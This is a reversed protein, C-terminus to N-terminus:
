VLWKSAGITLFLNMPVSILTSFFFDVFLFFHLNARPSYLVQVRWRFYFILFFSPICVEYRSLFSVIIQKVFLNRGSHQWPFVMERAHDLSRSCSGITVLYSQHVEPYEYEWSILLSLYFYESIRLNCFICLPSVMM